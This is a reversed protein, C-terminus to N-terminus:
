FLVLILLECIIQTYFYFLKINKIFRIITVLKILKFRIVNYYVTNM